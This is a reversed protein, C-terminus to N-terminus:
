RISFYLIIAMFLGFVLATIAIQLLTKRNM